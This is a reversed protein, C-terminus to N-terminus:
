QRVDLQDPHVPQLACICSTDIRIWRWAVINHSDATLAQVFSQKTKCESIWLRRDVGRCGGATAKCKTEFFYQRLRGKPTQVESLVTVNDGRIDLATHKDAVWHSVTDCVPKEAQVTSNEVLPRVTPELRSFIAQPFFQERDGLLDETCLVESTNLLASTNTPLPTAHLLPLLLTIMAHSLILMVGQMTTVKAM